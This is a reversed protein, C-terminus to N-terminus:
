QRGVSESMSPITATPEDTPAPARGDGSGFVRRYLDEGHSTPQPEGEVVRFTRRGDALREARLFVADVPPAEYLGHALDYLHTVYFVDVGAELLARVIQRAIESGERENTSAFSENCLLLANSGVLDALASMRRLEEDLKGSQMTADEERRYHTYVASRVGLACMEAGVFMGAQAMLQALGVSRLFTSKGGRNAGTIVILRVTDAAVDNGVAPASAALSLSVDVLGRATLRHSGPPEVEPLCIPQGLQELRSALNLCGILFGLEARLARFFSLIHDVSRALAVAALAIGRGRLDSLTKAGTEDRDAVRYVLGSRDGLLWERWTRERANPWRLVYDTGVNGEGLRGSMLVGDRFTLRRLHERVEALYADDLEAALMAFLTRFGESHFSSVASEATERLRTLSAVFTEMVEVSRHLLGDPYNTYAGYWVKREADIAEVAIAYISRVVEPHDLADRVVGQRYGIAREDTLSRLLVHRVVPDLFKDGRAMAGFLVELGLDEILAQSQPPLAAGLDLDGKRFLLHVKM